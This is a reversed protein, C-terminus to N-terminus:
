TAGTHTRIVHSHCLNNRRATFRCDIFILNEPMERIKIRNKKVTTDGEPIHLQLKTETEITTKRLKHCTM